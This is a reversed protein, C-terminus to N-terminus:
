VIQDNSSNAENQSLSNKLLDDTDYTQGLSVTSYKTETNSSINSSIAEVARVTTNKSLCLTCILLILILIYTRKRPNM